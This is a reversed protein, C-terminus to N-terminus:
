ISRIMLAILIFSVRVSRSDSHYLGVAEDVPRAGLHDYAWDSDGTSGAKFSRTASLAQSNNTAVIHVNTDEPPGFQTSNGFYNIDAFGMRENKPDHVM